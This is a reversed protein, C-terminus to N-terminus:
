RYTETLRDTKSGEIDKYIEVERNYRRKHANAHVNKYIKGSLFTGIEFTWWELSLMIMGSISIRVFKGWDQLSEM